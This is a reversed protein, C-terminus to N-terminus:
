CPLMRLLWLFFFFLFFFFFFFLISSRYSFSCFIFFDFSFPSPRHSFRFQIDVKGLPVIAKEKASSAASVKYAGSTTGVLEMEWIGGDSAGPANTDPGIWQAGSASIMSVLPYGDSSAGFSLKNGAITLVDANAVFVFYVLVFLAFSFM